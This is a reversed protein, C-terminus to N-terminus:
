SLSTLASDKGAKHRQILIVDLDDEAIAQLRAKQPIPYYCLVFALQAVIAIHRSIVSAITAQNKAGTDRM